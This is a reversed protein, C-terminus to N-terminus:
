RLWRERIKKVRAIDEMKLITNISGTPRRRKKNDPSSATCKLRKSQRQITEKLPSIKKETKSERLLVGTYLSMLIKRVRRNPDDAESSLAEAMNELMKLYDKNAEAKATRWTETTERAFNYIVQMRFSPHDINRVIYVIRSDWDIKKSKSIKVLMNSVEQELYSDEFSNIKNTESIKKSLNSNITQNIFAMATMAARDDSSQCLRIASKLTRKRFSLEPYFSSMVAFAYDLIQNETPSTQLKENKAIEEVLSVLHEVLTVYACSRKYKEMKAKSCALATHLYRFLQGMQVPDLEGKHGGPFNSTSGADETLLFQKVFKSQTEIAKEADVGDKQGLIVETMKRFCIDANEPNHWVDQCVFDLFNKASHQNRERRKRRYLPNKLPEGAKATKGGNQNTLYKDMFKKM